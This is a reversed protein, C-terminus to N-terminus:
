FFIRYMVDGLIAFVAIRRRYDVVVLIFCLFDNILIAITSAQIIVLYTYLVVFTVM